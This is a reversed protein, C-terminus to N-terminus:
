KKIVIVEMFEIKEGEQIRLMYTAPKLSSVNFAIDHVGAGIAENVINAIAMKGNLDLLDIKIDSSETLILDVKADEAVPNPYVTYKGTENNRDVFVAVIKSKTYKGDKDYQMVRYYYIGEKFDTKDEYQYVNSIENKAAVEGINEFKDATHYSRQVIFKDVDKENATAWNVVTHDYVWKAGVTLFNLPLAGAVIGADLHQTDDEPNLYFMNTTGFGNIHTVDSDYQEDGQDPSTFGYSSNYPAPIKFKIYYNEAQLYTLDYQGSADTMTTSYLDGESDYIEVEANALGPESTERLGNTNNDIWALSNSVQAMGYYGADINLNGSTGSVLVFQDTTGHGFARTIDSDITDNGGVNAQAPVLGIPPTIFKIYYTGPNTCFNYYGDGCISNPSIGTYDYDWLVWNGNTQRYLEVRLGNVGSEGTNYKNDKNYDLWVLDGIEVCKYVGADIDHRV